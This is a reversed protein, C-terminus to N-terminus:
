CYPITRPDRQTEYVPTHPPPRRMHVRCRAVRRDDWCHPSTRGAVHWRGGGPQCGSCAKTSLCLGARATFSILNRLGNQSVADWPNSFLTRWGGGNARPSNTARKLARPGKRGCGTLALLSIIAVEAVKARLLHQRQLFGQIM